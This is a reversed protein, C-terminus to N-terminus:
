RGKWALYGCQSFALFMLHSLSRERTSCTIQKPQRSRDSRCSHNTSYSREESYISRTRMEPNSRRQASGNPALRVSVVLHPISALIMLYILVYHSRGINAILVHPPRESHERASWAPWKYIENALFFFHSGIKKTHKKKGRTTTIVTM